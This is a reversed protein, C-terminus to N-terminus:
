SQIKIDVQRRNVFSVALITPFVSCPFISFLTTSASVHGPLIQWRSIEATATNSHLDLVPLHNVCVM